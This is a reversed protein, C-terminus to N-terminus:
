IEIVAWVSCMRKWWGVATREASWHMKKVSPGHGSRHSIHAVRNGALRWTLLGWMDEEESYSRRSCRPSNLHNWQCGEETGTCHSDGSQGEGGQRKYDSLATAKGLLARTQNLGRLQLFTIRDAQRHLVEQLGSAGYYSYPSNPHIGDQLRNIIGELSKNKPLSLCPPCSVGPGSKSDHCNRAFLTMVNQGRDEETLTKSLCVVWKAMSRVESHSNFPGGVDYTKEQGRELKQWTKYKSELDV